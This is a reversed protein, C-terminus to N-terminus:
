GNKDRYTVYYPFTQCPAGWNPNVYGNSLEPDNATHALKPIPPLANDVITDEAFVAQNFFAFLLFISLCSIIGTIIKAARIQKFNIRIMIEIRVCFGGRFGRRPLSPLAKIRLSKGKSLTQTPNDVRGM